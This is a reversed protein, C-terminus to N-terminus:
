YLMTRLRYAILRARISGEKGKVPESDHHPLILLDHAEQRLRYDPLADPLPSSRAPRDRCSLQRLIALEKPRRSPSMRFSLQGLLDSSM